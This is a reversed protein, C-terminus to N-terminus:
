CDNNQKARELGKKKGNGKESAKDLADCPNNKEEPEPPVVGEIVSVTDDLSNAVYVLNTDPNVAVGQPFSGVSITAVVSNTEGDIVSVTDDNQDAVYVLDTDPNVAVGSPGDGVSITAVVTQASVPEATMLIIGLILISAIVPVAWKDLM